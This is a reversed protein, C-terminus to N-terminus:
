LMNGILHLWGGHLFMSAFLPIILDPATVPAIWGGPTVVVDHFYRAPIVGFTNCFVALQKRGMGLQYIFVLVNSVILGINVFPITRSPVDDRLPIM